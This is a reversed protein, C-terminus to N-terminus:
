RVGPVETHIHKLALAIQLLIKLRRTPTVYKNPDKIARELDGNELYPSVFWVEDKQKRFLYLIFKYQDINCLQTSSSIQQSFSVPM